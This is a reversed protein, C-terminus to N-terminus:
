KLNEPYKLYEIGVEDAEDRLLRELVAAQSQGRNASLTKLIDLATETLKFSSPKRSM